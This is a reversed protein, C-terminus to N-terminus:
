FLVCKRKPPNKAQQASGARNHEARKRILRTLEGFCEEINIMEKASTEFFLCKHNNALASGEEKSVKRLGEKDLDVKNGVVVTPPADQVSVDKSELIM